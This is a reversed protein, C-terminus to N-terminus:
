PTSQVPLYHYKRKIGPEYTEKTCIKCLGPVKALNLDHIFHSGWNARSPNAFGAPAAFLVDYLSSIATFILTCETLFNQGEDKVAAGQSEGV